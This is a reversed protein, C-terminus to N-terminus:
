DYKGLYGHSPGKLVQNIQQSLNELTERTIAPNSTQQTNTKQQFGFQQQQQAALYAQKQQESAVSHYTAHPKYNSPINNLNDNISDFKPRQVSQVPHSFRYPSLDFNSLEAQYFNAQNDSGSGYHDSNKQLILPLIQTLPEKVKEIGSIDVRYTKSRFNRFSVKGKFLKFGLIIKSFFYGFNMLLLLKLMKFNALNILFMLLVVSSLKGMVFAIPILMKVM